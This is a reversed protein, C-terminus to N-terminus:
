AIKEPLPFWGLFRDFLARDGTLRLEGNAEADLVPRGGYVVSALSMPNTSVVLASGQHTYLCRFSLPGQEQPKWIVSRLLYKLWFDLM